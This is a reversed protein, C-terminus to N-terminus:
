EKIFSQVYIKDGVQLRAHYFGKPNGSLDLIKTISEEKQASYIKDGYHNFVTLSVQQGEFVRSEIHVMDTAPSPYAKVPPNETLNSFSSISNNLTPGSCSAVSFNTNGSITADARCSHLIARQASPATNNRIINGTGVSADAYLHIKGNISNDEIVVNNATFDTSNTNAVVYIGLPDFAAMTNGSIHVDNIDRTKYLGIYSNIVNDEIDVGDVLTGGCCEQILIGEGDVSLYPGEKLLHRYVELDNNTIVVNRGGWDIGRNEMTTSNGTLKVGTPDVWRKKGQEDRVVNNDIVLGDGRAMIAVRMTHFMWNDRVTVGERFNEPSTAPTGANVSGNGKGVEMVYHDTYKFNVKCNTLNLSTGSNDVVYSDYCFNDTTNDNHRTNAVLINRFNYLFLNYAFRYSNRQWAYQGKNLNPVGPDARAVNNTRVGYVVINEGSANTPNPPSFSVGARNIDVNVVGINSDTQPNLTRIFKFATNNPTGNGTFTPIYKPFVLKSPPGFSSNQANQNGPTAGRIIVGNTTYLDDSFYYTGAPFYVVGGGNAEAADRAANFAALNDTGTSNAYNGDAVGGYDLINFVCDWKMDATWPYTGPYASAIPNDTPGGNGSGCSPTGGGPNALATIEATGLAVDYVRADDIFGDFFRSQGSGAGYADDDNRAGLGAPNSHTSVVSVNSNSAADVQAGDVYLKLNGSNFVVAIHSWSTSTFAVSVNLNNYRKDLARAQLVDNNIRLTFGNIIGGEEYINQVGSTNDAKIWLALSRTTFPSRLADSAIDVWDNTGDLSVSHSGVVADSNYTAGKRLTANNGNGSADGATNDFTWHALPSSQSCVDYATLTM